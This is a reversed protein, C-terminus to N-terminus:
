TLSASNPIRVSVLINSIPNPVKSTLGSLTTPINKAGTSLSQLMANPVSYQIIYPSWWGPKPPLLSLSFGPLVHQFSIKCRGQVQPPCLYLPAPSQHHQRLSGAFGTTTGELLHYHFGQVHDRWPFIICTFVM